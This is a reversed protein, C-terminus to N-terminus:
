SREKNQIPSVSAKISPTANEAGTQTKDVSESGSSDTPSLSKKLTKFISEIISIQNLIEESDGFEIRGLLVHLHCTLLNSLQYKAIVGFGEIHVAQEEM